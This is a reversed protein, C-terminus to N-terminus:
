NLMIYEITKNMVMEEHQRDNFLHKAGVLVYNQISSENYVQKRINKTKEDESGWICFKDCELKLYDEYSTGKKLQSLYKLNIPLGYMQFNRKKNSVNKIFMNEPNEVTDGESIDIDDLSFVPNWLIVAGVKINKGSQIVEVAIRAGDSFGILYYKRDQNKAGFCGEIFDLVGKIDDCRTQLSIQSIDGSSIGQARFDVRAMIIGHASMKDAIKISMRHEETRDGNFGYCMLVIKNVWKVKDPIHLMGMIVNKKNEVQFPIRM